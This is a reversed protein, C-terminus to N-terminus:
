KSPVFEYKMIGSELFICFLMIEAGFNSMWTKESKLYEVVNLSYVPM